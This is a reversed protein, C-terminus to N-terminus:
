RAYADVGVMTATRHAGPKRKKQFEARTAEDAGHLISAPSAATFMGPRRGAPDADAHGLMVEDMDINRHYSPLGGFRPRSVSLCRRSRDPRLLGARRLHGMVLAPHPHPRVHDAPDLVNFKFPFLDGKWGVVNLPITRTTSRLRARGQTEDAGRIREAAQPPLRRNGAGRADDSRDAHAGWVKRAEACRSRPAAVRRGDVSSDGPDPIQQFTTAKPLLVSDGPEYTIPGFETASTGTGRHVFYLLDGEMDRYCYPM